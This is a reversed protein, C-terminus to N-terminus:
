TYHQYLPLKIIYSHMWRHENLISTSIKWQGKDMLSGVPLSRPNFRRRGPSLGAFVAQSLALGKLALWKTVFMLETELLRMLNESVYKSLCYHVRHSLQNLCLAVLRFTTPKIGSSTVPIKWQCLGWAASHGQPRSLRLCFHTDSVSGPTHLHGTRLASLRVVKM